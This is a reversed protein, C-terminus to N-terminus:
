KRDRCVYLHNVVAPDCQSDGSNGADNDDVIYKDLIALVFALLDASRRVNLEALLPM